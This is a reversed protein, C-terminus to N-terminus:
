ADALSASAIMRVRGSARHAASRVRSPAGPLNVLEARLYHDRFASWGIATVAGSVVAANMAAGFAAIDARAVALEAVADGSEGVTVTRHEPLREPPLPQVVTLRMVGSRNTRWTRNHTRNHARNVLRRALDTQHELEGRQCADHIAFTLDTLADQRFEDTASRSLRRRLDPALAQLLVTQADSHIQGVRVLKRLLDDSRAPDPRNTRLAAMLGAVTDLGDFQRPDLWPAPRRAIRLAAQELDRYPDRSMPPGEQTPEQGSRRCDVDEVVDRPQDRAEDLKVA